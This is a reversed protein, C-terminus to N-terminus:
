RYTKLLKCLESITIKRKKQIIKRKKITKPIECLGLFYGELAYLFTRFSEKRILRYYRILRSISFILQLRLLLIFPYNKLRLAILNKECLKTILGKMKSFTAERKHYCIAKPNYNCKYNILQLRFGFDVDEFYAYFDEDFLGAKEFAERRYAAAGACASFIFTQKNFEESDKLGHGRATPAGKWNIYDGAADILTNDYYNLMKAAVSGTDDTIFGRIMEAVFESDCKVDNNLLIIYKIEPKKLAEIIGYNIAKAFGQNNPLRILNVEPYEKEIITDSGDQSANDIVTISFNKETQNRLSDLCERIHEKGNYNPIVIQIM